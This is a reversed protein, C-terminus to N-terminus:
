KANAQKKWPFFALFHLIFALFCISSVFYICVFICISLDNQGWKNQKRKKKLKSTINKSKGYTNMNKANELKFMM